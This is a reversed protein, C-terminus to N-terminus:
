RSISPPASYAMSIVTHKLNVVHSTAFVHVGARNIIAVEYSQAIVTVFFMMVKNLPNLSFNNVYGRLFKDSCQVSISM